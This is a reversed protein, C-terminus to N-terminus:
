IMLDCRQQEAEVARPYSDQVLQLLEEAQDRCFADDGDNFLWATPPEIYNSAPCTYEPAPEPPDRIYDSVVDYFPNINNLDVRAFLGSAWDNSM